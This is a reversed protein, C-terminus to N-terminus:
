RFTKLDALLDLSDNSRRRRHRARGRGRGAAGRTPLVGGVALKLNAVPNAVV